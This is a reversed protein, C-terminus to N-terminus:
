HIIVAMAPRRKPSITIRSLMEEKKLHKGEVCFKREDRFTFWCFLWYIYVSVFQAIMYASVQVFFHEREHPTM